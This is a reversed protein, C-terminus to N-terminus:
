RRGVNSAWRERESHYPRSQTKRCTARGVEGVSHKSAIARLAGRAGSQAYRKDRAGRLIRSLLLSNDLRQREPLVVRVVVVRVTPQGLRLRPLVVPLGGERASVRWARGRLYQESCMARQEPAQGSKSM